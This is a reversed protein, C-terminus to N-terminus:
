NCGKGRSRKCNQLWLKARAPEFTESINGPAFLGAERKKPLCVVYGDKGGTAFRSYDGNSSSMGRIALLIHSDQADSIDKPTWPCNRLFSLAQLQYPQKSADEAVEPDSWEHECSCLTSTLLKCVPCVTDPLQAFRNADEDLPIGSDQGTTKHPSRLEAAPVKLAKEFDIARCPDCISDAM